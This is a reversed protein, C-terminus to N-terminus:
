LIDAIDHCYRPRDSMMVIDSHGSPNLWKNCNQVVKLIGEHISFEKM